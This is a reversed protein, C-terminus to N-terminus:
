AKVKGTVNKNWTNGEDISSISHQSMTQEVAVYANIIRSDWLPPVSQQIICTLYLLSAQSSCHQTLILM